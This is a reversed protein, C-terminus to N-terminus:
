DPSAPAKGFDRWFRKEDMLKRHAKEAKALLRKRKEGKALKADIGLRALVEPSVVLDNLEGLRDQLTKLSEVFSEQERRAKKTTCLSAFFEAAYRLKKAEIRVEHRHADDLRALGRGRRKLRKRRKELLDRAFPLVPAHIRSPDAPRSCWAGLSLWEVLDIMLLRTRASALEGRVHEFTRARAAELRERVEGDCREVLVDINRVEGLEAAIWRAESKLLEAQGDDALLDKYLSFASRLRRLGVRAQHLSDASGTQLLLAENLRFQRICAMAIARFAGAADGNPDLAIPHAKVPGPTEGALLAYGRESKSRVGLRLPVQDDLLRALDFLAQPTGGRLELELESVPEARDGARVEGADLAIELSAGHGDVEFSTREVDTEFLPAIRDLAGAGVMEALPGSDGDLVPTDGDIRREWEPRAFLGAASGNDSKITQVREEGCRRVRLSYGAAHLDGDPTDFYTSVFRDCARDATSFLPAAELRQRDALAFELKLELEVPGKMRKESPPRAPRSLADAAAGGAEDPSPVNWSVARRIRSRFLTAARALFSTAAFTM